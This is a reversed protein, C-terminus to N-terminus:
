NGGIGGGSGGGPGGLSGLNTGSYFYVSPAQGPAGAIRVSATGTGSVGGAGVQQNTGGAAGNAVISNFSTNGGTTGAATGSTASAAGGGGGGKMRVLLQKCNAPTTYTASSGSLFVQRTHVALTTTNGAPGTGGATGDLILSM